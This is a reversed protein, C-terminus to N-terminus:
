KVIWESKIVPLHYVELEFTDSIGNPLYLDRMAISIPLENPDMFSYILDSYRYFDIKLRTYYDPVRLHLLNYKDEPFIVGSPEGADDVCNYYDEKTYLNPFSNSGGICFVFGSIKPNHYIERLKNLVIEYASRQSPHPFNTKDFEPTYLKNKQLIKCVEKSQWTWLNKKM